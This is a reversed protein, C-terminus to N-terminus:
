QCIGSRGLRIGDRESLGKGNPPLAGKGDKTRIRIREGANKGYITWDCMHTFMRGGLIKEGYVDYNIM